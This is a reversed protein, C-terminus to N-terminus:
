PLSLSQEDLYSSFSQGLGVGQNRLFDFANAMKLYNEYGYGLIDPTKPLHRDFEGFMSSRSSSCAALLIKIDFM